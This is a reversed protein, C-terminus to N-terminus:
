SNGGNFLLLEDTEIIWVRNAVEKEFDGDAIKKVWGTLCTCLTSGNADRILVPVAGTDSAEDTAALTSLYDNSPSSQHLTITIKGSKDNTKSRTGIGDVGVKMNWMDSNRAAKIFNGDTFGSIIQGGVIVSVKKPNYTKASM